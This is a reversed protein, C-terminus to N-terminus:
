SADDRRWGFLCRTNKSVAVDREAKFAEVACAKRIGVAIGNHQLIEELVEVLNHFWLQIGNVSLWGGGARDGDLAHAEELGTGCGIDFTQCETGVIDAFVADVQREVAADIRKRIGKQEVEDM